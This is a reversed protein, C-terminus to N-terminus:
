HRVHYTIYDSIHFTLNMMRMKNLLLYDEIDSSVFKFGDKMHKTRVAFSIGVSFPKFDTAGYPPLVKFDTAQMRFIVFDLNPRQVLENKLISVYQSTLTDDDDVFGVWETNAEMAAINRLEGAHNSTGVKGLKETSISQIRNDSFLPPTFGDAIVLACWNPDTQTILSSLTRNLTPRNKSPIIFTITIENRIDCCHPKLSQPSMDDTQSESYVFIVFILGVIKLIM